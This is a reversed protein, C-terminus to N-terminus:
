KVEEWNEIFRIEPHLARMLARKIRYEPTVAGKSEFVCLKGERDRFTFDARYTCIEVGFITLVFNVQRKLDCVEGALEGWMLHEGDGYELKSDAIKKGDQDYVRTNNFKSRKKKRLQAQYDEISMRETM